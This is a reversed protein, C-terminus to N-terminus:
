IYACSDHRMGYVSYVLSIFIFTRECIRFSKMHFKIASTHVKNEGMLKWLKWPMGTFRM